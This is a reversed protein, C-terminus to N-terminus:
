NTGDIAQKYRLVGRYIAEAVDRQFSERRIEREDKRHSIFACQIMVAPMDLGALLTLEAQDIGRGPIDL